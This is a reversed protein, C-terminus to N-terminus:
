SRGDAPQHTAESALKSADGAAETGLQKVANIAEAAQTTAASKAEGVINEIDEHVEPGFKSKLDALLHEFAQEIKEIVNM